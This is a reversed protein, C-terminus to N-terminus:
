SLHFDCIPASNTVFASFAIAARLCYPKAQSVLATEPRRQNKLRAPERPEHAPGLREMCDTCQTGTIRILRNEGGSWANGGTYTLCGEGQYFAQIRRADGGFYFPIWRKGTEHSDMDDPGDMLALVEPMKMDIQLKSFKRGPVVRGVLEGDISGDRSKVQQTPGYDPAQVTNPATPPASQTACGSVAAALGFLALLATLRANKAHVTYDAKLTQSASPALECSHAM